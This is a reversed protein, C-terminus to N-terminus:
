RPTEHASLRELLLLLEAAANYGLGPDDALAPDRSGALIAALAALIPKVDSSVNPEQGMQALASALPKGIGSTIAGTVNAFIPAAVLSNASEGGDRRYALYTATAHRHAQRAAGENGEAREVLALWAFTTWPEGVHGFPKKCESARHLESRAEKYRKLKFLAAAANNRVRGESALNAIGPEAFIAAAQRNFKIADELQETTTSLNGLEALAMAEGARDRSQIKIALSRQYANEAAAYDGSKWHVIGIEHWVNGVRKADKLDALTKKAADFTILAEAYLGQSSQVKGLAFVGLAAHRRDGREEAASIIAAFAQAADDFRGLKWLGDAREAVCVSIMRTASANGAESLCVFRQEADVLSVLGADADDGGLLARGLQFMCLALDYPAQSYAKEGAEQARNLLRRASDVAEAFRGSDQLRDVTALADLVHAHCWNGLRQAAQERIQTVRALARQRGLPELLAELKFAVVVVADFSAAASSSDAPLQTASAATCFRFDLAALLNALDFATLASSVRTTSSAPSPQWRM